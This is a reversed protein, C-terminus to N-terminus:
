MMLMAIGALLIIMLCAVALLKVGIKKSYVGNPFRHHNFPMTHLHRQGM